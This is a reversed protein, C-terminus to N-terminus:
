VEQFSLWRSLSSFGPCRATGTLTAKGQSEANLEPRYETEYHRKMYDLDNHTITVDHSNTLVAEHPLTVCECTVLGLVPGLEIRLRLTFCVVLRECEGLLIEPGQVIDFLVLLVPRLDLHAKVQGLIHEYAWRAPQYSPSDSRTARHAYSCM